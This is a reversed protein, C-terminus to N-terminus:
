RVVSFQELSISVKDAPKVTSRKRKRMQSSKENFCLICIILQIVMTLLGVYIEMVM